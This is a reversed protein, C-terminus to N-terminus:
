SRTELGPRASSAQKPPVGFGVDSNPCFAAWGYIVVLIAFIVTLGHYGLKYFWNTLFPRADFVAFQVVLRAAWFTAIFLCLSRAVPDGTAMADANLFTLISFGIINYVIFSGYVWFLQRLFPPLAALNSRWDLVRPVLASAVLICLQLAGGLQLVTKM